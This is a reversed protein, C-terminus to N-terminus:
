GDSTMEETIRAQRRVEQAWGACLTGVTGDRKFPVGAVQPPRWDDSSSPVDGLKPHRYAVPRRMGTHCWFPTGAVALGILEEEVLADSREASGRKFACDGCRAHRVEISGEPVPLIPDAQEVDYVAEWCTCREPGYVVAGECCSWTEHPPNAPDIEPHAALWKPWAAVATGGHELKAALNLVESPVDVGAERAKAIVRNVVQQELANPM